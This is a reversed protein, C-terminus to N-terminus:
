ELATGIPPIDFDCQLFPESAASTTSAAKFIREEARTWSASQEVTGMVLEGLIHLPHYAECLNCVPTYFTYLYALQSSSLETFYNLSHM